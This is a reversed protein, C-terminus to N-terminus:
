PSNIAYGSAVALGCALATKFTRMGILFPIHKESANM